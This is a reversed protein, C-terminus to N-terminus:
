DLLINQNPGDYSLWSNAPEVTYTPQPCKAPDSLDFESAISTTVVPNLDKAGTITAVSTPTTDMTCYIFNVTVSVPIAVLDNLVARQVSLDVSLTSSTAALLTETTEIIM